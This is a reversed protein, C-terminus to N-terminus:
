LVLSDLSFFMLVDFGFVIPGSFLLFLFSYLCLGFGMGFLRMLTRWSPSGVLFIEILLLAFGRLLCSSTKLPELM